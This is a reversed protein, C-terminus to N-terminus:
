ARRRSRPPRLIFGRAGAPASHIQPRTGRVPARGEPRTSLGHVVREASDGDVPRKRRANGVPQGCERAERGCGWLELLLNKKEFFLFARVAFFPCKQKPSFPVNRSQTSMCFMPSCGCAPADACGPQGFRAIRALACSGPLPLCPDLQRLPDCCGRSGLVPSPGFPQPDSRSRPFGLSRSRDGAPGPQYVPSRRLPSM